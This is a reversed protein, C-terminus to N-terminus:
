PNIQSSNPSARPHGSGATKWTLVSHCPPIARKREGNNKKMKRM